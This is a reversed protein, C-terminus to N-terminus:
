QKEGSTHWRSNRFVYAKGTVDITVRFGHKERSVTAPIRVYTCILFVTGYLPFTNGALTKKLVSPSIIRELMDKAEHESVGYEALLTRLFVPFHENTGEFVKERPLRMPKRMFISLEFADRFFVVHSHTEPFYLRFGPQAKFVMASIGLAKCIHMMTLATPFIRGLLIQGLHYPTRKSHLKGILERRTMGAKRLAICFFIPLFTHPLEVFRHTFREKQAM